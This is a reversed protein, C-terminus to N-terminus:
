HWTLTAGLLWGTTEYTGYFGDIQGDAPTVDVDDFALYMLALDFTVTPGNWGYGATLANRDADPLLPSVSATPQPSEDYIYGVRWEGTGAGRWRFGIRYSWVDEWDEPRDIAFMPESPVDVVLRDFSSWGTWNFDVELWSSASLAFGVGLSAQDPFEISTSVPIDRDFPIVLGVFQDFPAIGTPIQRLRLDGGYDVEITSRYSLGWHFRESPRHLLGLAFGTGNDLDSELSADAVDVPLGFVPDPLLLRRNLELDSWRVVVGAGIGLTDSVQWGLGATLDFTRMEADYSIARGPWTDPNDWETALGFPNNLAFGFRWRPAVQQTYYVHSPFFISDTREGDAGPGPFPAAGFFDSETQAILTTGVSIQRGDLFALGGINHFMASPDDAQATFAGGMAMAKAGQEFISFGAAHLPTAALVALIACSVALRGPSAHHPM